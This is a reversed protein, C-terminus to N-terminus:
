LVSTPPLEPSECRHVATSPQGGGEEKKAAAGGEGERRQWYGKGKRDRKKREKEKGKEKREKGKRKRELIKKVFHVFSVEIETEKEKDGM